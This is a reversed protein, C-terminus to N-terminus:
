TQKWYIITAQSGDISVEITTVSGGVDSEIKYRPPGFIKLDDVFFKDGGNSVDADFKIRTQNSLTYPTLDIDHYYYTDDSDASTWTDLTSWQSGDPSLLLSSNDGSQFSKVRAWFQVRVGSPQGSLDVIRTAAGGANRISLHHSGQYPLESHPIGVMGTVSWDGSWGTGLSFTDHFEFPDAAILTGLYTISVNVTEGNVPGGLIYSTEDDVNPISAGLNNYQLEWIADEVGADGAYDESEAFSAHRAILSGTSVTSLLPVVVVAGVLMLLMAMPLAAGSESKLLKKMRMGGICCVFRLEPSAM